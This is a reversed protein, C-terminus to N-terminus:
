LISTQGEEASELLALEIVPLLICWTSTFQRQSAQWPVTHNLLQGDPCSRLQKGNVYLMLDFLCVDSRTSCRNHEAKSPAVGSEALRVKWNVDM